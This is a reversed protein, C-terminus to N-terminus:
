IVDNTINITIFNSKLVICNKYGRGYMFGIHAMAEYDTLEEIPFSASKEIVQDKKITLKYRPFDDHHVFPSKSYDPYCGILIMDELYKWCGDCMLIKISRNSLNKFTATVNIEDGVKAETKSVIITFDFDSENLEYNDTCSFLSFSLTFLLLNVLIISKIRYKM